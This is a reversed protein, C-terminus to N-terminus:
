AEAGAPQPATGPAEPTARAVHDQAHPAARRVKFWQAYLAPLFLLTLVTAVLLGGMIAVAMPGWFTSRTLPIMALIAALATLMIPRFRRLTSGVVAEWREIGEGIDHEIQDVLIVSNRMIMGSLAIVGLMAVFGFPARFAILTLTVGIMGLPATLVVMLTRQFSQLQLMLLTLVVVIMLPAVKAIAQQSKVSSEVSGGMEIHYGLPLTAELQKLRPALAQVVDAAQVGDATDARVTVTPLRNRRWIISEEPQYEIRALQSVPVFRGNAAQVMLNGLGAVDTKEAPNLRAEVTITRDGERLETVAAGSILLQLQRGLSQSSVGLTRARDQDIVLRLSKIQEGWDNNVQRTGPQSRLLAELRAAIRKVQEHREGMVRYQVPYGVPPGNELRIVRGRLAPFDSDFARELDRKVTERVKEDRTMVMLQAYNLHPMQQDLPLYFRPSGGGVYSTISDVGPHHAFMAELKKTERETAQYSAGQPLWLDVLLEVRNSSPFFQQPVFLRFAGLSLLFLALTAAIVSKRHDLCWELVSRFRRYFPKHYVDAHEGEAKFTPLLKFGLYPTFIVAVVWSLVLALGVVAFLSFVYEGANSKALGVPLFTAATILTGTLMPFATSTYAFTAAQYRNWGQELKLAMMEVAIIADDVLLGLAIILSGLSIRQLDINFFYMALFTMALVLPISLAVVVGSRWGLSFFSVALVIVVAEILSHMFESISHQVVKPQDSVPSIEVGLPLAAKVRALLQDLDRGLRLVDGGDKMSIALGLAPKGNFRMSFGPPTVFARHVTAIDALRFSQGNVTIPTNRVAELTGYAGSPRVWIREGATEFVGAPTVANQEALANWVTRTDLGLTALRTTSLDVYLREPQEGVIDVKGVDPLRLVEQRTRDAYRRLEEASFGDGTFALINGFTDGFEDNFFPGKLDAPLNQRIDGLKKRVQYWQGPVKDPAIGERLNLLLQAEGPKTFSKVYELGDLEQLKQELKDTVQQEMESASAGPWVVKVMMAKFTFSPDEKQGLQTYAWAGALMLTIMLYLVLAQHKLAWESLNLRQKM